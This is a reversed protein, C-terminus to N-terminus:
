VTHKFTHRAKLGGSFTTLTETKYSSFTSFGRTDNDEALVNFLFVWNLTRTHQGVTTFHILIDATLTVNLMVSNEDANGLLLLWRLM